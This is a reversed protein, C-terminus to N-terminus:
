LLEKPPNNVLMANFDDIIKYYEDLTIKSYGAPLWFLKNSIYKTVEDVTM